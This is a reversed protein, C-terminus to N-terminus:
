LAEKYDQKFQGMIRIYEDNLNRIDELRQMERLLKLYNMTINCQAIINLDTRNDTGRWRQPTHEDTECLIYEIKCNYLDCLKRYQSLWRLRRKGHEIKSYNSQDIGLYDAVQTTTYGQETRLRRLRQGIQENTAKM